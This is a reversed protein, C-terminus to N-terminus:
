KTAKKFLVYTPTLVTNGSNFFEKASMDRPGSYWTSTLHMTGDEYKFGSPVYGDPIEFLRHFQGDDHIYGQVYYDENILKTAFPFEVVEPEPKAEYDLRLRYAFNCSLHRESLIPCWRASGVWLEFEKSDMEGAKAQMEKSMLGFPKENDKLAQILEENIM